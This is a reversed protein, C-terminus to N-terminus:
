RVISIQNRYGAEELAKQTRTGRSLIDWNEPIKGYDELFNKVTSPSTFFIKDIPTSPLPRKAPKTNQYVVLEIVRSGAKELQEKLFPNPLSSRPFLINKGRLDGDAKLATLMGESNEEEATVKARFGYQALTWATSEGIVAFDIKKLDDM